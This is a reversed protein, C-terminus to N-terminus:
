IVISIVLLMVGSQIHKGQKIKLSEVNAFAMISLILLVFFGAIGIFLIYNSLFSPRAM